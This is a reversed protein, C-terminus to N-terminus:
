QIQIAEVKLMDGDATGQVTATVDAPTSPEKSRDASSGGQKMAAAAKQDGAADLKLIKGSVQLAFSSTSSSPTCANDKQQQACSADVLKGTFTEAMALASGVALIAGLVLVRRM